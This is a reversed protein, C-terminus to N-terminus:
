DVLWGGLLLRLVVTHGGVTSTMDVLLGHASTFAANRFVVVVFLMTEHMTMYFLNYFVDIASM